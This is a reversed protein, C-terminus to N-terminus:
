LHFSFKRENRLREEKYVIFWLFIVQDNCAEMTNLYNFLNKDYAKVTSNIYANNIYM